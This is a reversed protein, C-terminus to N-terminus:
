VHGNILSVVSPRMRVEIGSNCFHSCVKPSMIFLHNWTSENCPFTFHPWDVERCSRRREEPICRWWHQSFSIMTLLRCQFSVRWDNANKANWLMEWCKHSRRKDGMAVSWSLKVWDRTEYNPFNNNKEEINMFCVSATFYNYWRSSPMPIPCKKSHNGGLVIGSLLPALHLPGGWFSLGSPLWEPGIGASALSVFPTFCLSTLFQRLIRDGSRCPFDPQQSHVNSRIPPTM